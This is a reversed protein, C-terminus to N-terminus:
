KKCAIADFVGLDWQKFKGDAEIKDKLLTKAEITGAVLVKPKGLATYKGGEYSLYHVESFYKTMGRGFKGTTGMTITTSGDAQDALGIHGNVILNCPIQFLQQLLRQNEDAVVGFIQRGDIIKPNKEKVWPVLMEHMVSHSDIVVTAFPCNKSLEAVSKEYNRFDGGLNELEPHPLFSIIDLKKKEEDSLIQVHDAMKGDFDYIRMPGFKLATLARTTKGKGSLGLQMLRFRNAKKIETALM